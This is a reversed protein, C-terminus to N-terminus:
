EGQKTMLESGMVVGFHFGKLGAFMEEVILPFAKEETFKVPVHHVVHGMYFGDETHGMVAYGYPKSESEVVKLGPFAAVSM